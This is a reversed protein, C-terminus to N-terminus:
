KLTRRTIFLMLLTTALIDPSNYGFPRPSTLAIGLERVSTPARNMAGKQWAWLM